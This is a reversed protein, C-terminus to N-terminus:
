SPEWTLFNKLFAIGAQQSKEPHFQVGVINDRAVAATIPGGYDCVCALHMKNEVEFHYSHAFYFAEGDLNDFLPHPAQVSIANWGMHPVRLALDDPELLRVDGVIWGLGKSEGFEHGCDALLQMGVCVGLFPRCEILTNHEIAELLGVRASLGGLCASFAGVGPLILRDAERVAKPDATVNINIDAGLELAARGLAKEVSRLNGSGYDIIAIRQAM